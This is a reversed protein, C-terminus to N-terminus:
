EQCAQIEVEENIWCDLLITKTVPNECESNLKVLDEYQILKANALEVLNLDLEKAILWKDIAAQVMYKSDIKAAQVCESYSAEYLNGILYYPMGWSPDFNMTLTAYKKAETKNNLKNFYIEAIRYAYRAKFANNGTETLAQEYFEAALLYQNRDYAMAAKKATKSALNSAIELQKLEKGIDSDEVSGAPNQRLEKITQFAEVCNLMQLSEYAANRISDATTAEYIQRFIKVVETCSDADDLYLNYYIDINEKAKQYAELTLSDTTHEFNYKLITDLQNRSEWLHFLDIKEGGFLYTSFAGYVEVFEPSHRMEGTELVYKFTRVTVSEDYNIHYMEVAKEGLIINETESPYGFCKMRRDYLRLLESQYNVVTESDTARRMLQKYIKVGDIYHAVNGAPSFKYVQEWLEYAGEYDENKMLERYGDFLAKAKEEGKPFSTYDECQGFSKTFILGNIILLVLIYKKM